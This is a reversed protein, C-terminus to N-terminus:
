MLATNVLRQLRTVRSSCIRLCLMRTSLYPKANDASLYEPQQCGGPGEDTCDIAPNIDLYLHGCIFCSPIDASHSGSQM